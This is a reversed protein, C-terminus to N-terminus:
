IRCIGFWSDRFARAWTFGCRSRGSISPWDLWLRYSTVGPSPFSAYLISIYGILLQPRFGKFRKNKNTTSDRVGTAISVRGLFLQRPHMKTSSYQCLSDRSSKLSNFRLESVRGCHFRTKSSASALCDATTFVIATLINM